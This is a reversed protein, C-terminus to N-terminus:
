SKSSKDSALGHNGFDLGATEASRCVQPPKKHEHNILSSYIIGLRQGATIIKQKVSLVPPRFGTTFYLNKFQGHSFITPLSRGLWLAAEIILPAFQVVALHAILKQVNDRSSM